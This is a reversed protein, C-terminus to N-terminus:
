YVPSTKLQSRHAIEKSAKGLESNNFYLAGWLVLTAVGGKTMKKSQWVREIITKAGVASATLGIFGAYDNIINHFQHDNLLEKNSLSWIGWQPNVSINLILNVLQGELPKNKKGVERILSMAEIKQIRNLHRYLIVGSIAELTLQGGDRVFSFPIGTIKALLRLQEPLNTPLIYPLQSKNM